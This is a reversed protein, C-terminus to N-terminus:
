KGKNHAAGLISLTNRLPINLEDKIITFAGQLESRLRDSLDQSLISTISIWFSKSQHALEEAVKKLLSIDKEESIGVEDIFVHHNKYENNIKDMLDDNDINFYDGQKVTDVKIHRCNLSEFEKRLHLFLLSHM